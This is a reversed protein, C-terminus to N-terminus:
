PCGGGGLAMFFPDIDGGNLQGDHNVDTVCLLDCGPHAAQWAAPDGLAQFFPDIDGGNFIGDCSADGCLFAACPDPPVAFVQWFGGTLEFSGGTMVTTSADHQGITAALEFNGGSSSMAGGGDITYWDIAFNGALAAPALALTLIVISRSALRKTTM